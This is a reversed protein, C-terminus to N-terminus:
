RPYRDSDAKMRFHDRSFADAWLYSENVEDATLIARPILKIVSRELPGAASDGDPPRVTWTFRDGPRLSREASDPDLASCPLQLPQGPGGPEDSVMAEFTDSGVSTVYGYAVAAKDRVARPPDDERSDPMEASRVDDLSLLANGSDLHGLPTLIGREILNTIEGTSAARVAAAERVTILTDYVSM